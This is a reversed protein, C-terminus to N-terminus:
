RRLVGALTDGVGFGGKGVVIIGLSATERVAFSFYLSFFLSQVRAESAYVIKKKLGVSFTM